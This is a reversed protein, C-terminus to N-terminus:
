LDRNDDSTFEFTALHAPPTSKITNSTLAKFDVLQNNDIEWVKWRNLSLMSLEPETNTFVWINPSDFDWEKYKNRYDYIYGSKIIEIATYLGFLREKCMARPLDIFIPITKRIKKDMLINCCSLVLKDADNLPPLVVGGLYLRILHALTSKGKSGDPDYILNILRDNFDGCKEVVTKQFPLLTDMKGRFQRPIYKITDTDAWPGDIRSEDKMVYEFNTSAESSTPSYHGGVLKLINATRRKTKFSVRGQFHKYGTKLGEELQFCWFKCNDVLVKIIDDKSNSEMPCTFDFVCIPNKSM